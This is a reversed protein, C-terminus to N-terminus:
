EGLAFCHQGAPSHALTPLSSRWGSAAAGLVSHLSAGSTPYVHRTPPTAGPGPDRRWMPSLAGSHERSPRRPGRRRIASSESWAGDRPKRSAYFRGRSCGLSRRTCLQDGAADGASAQGVRPFGFGRPYRGDLTGCEASAAASRIDEVGAPSRYRDNRAATDSTGTGGLASVPPSLTSWPVGRM